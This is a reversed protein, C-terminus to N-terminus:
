VVECGVWDFVNEVMVEVCCEDVFEVGCYEFVVYFLGYGFLYVFDVEIVDFYWYGVFM